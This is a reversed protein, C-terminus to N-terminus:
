RVLIDETLESANTSVLLLQVPSEAKGNLDFSISDQTAVLHVGEPLVFGSKELEPLVDLKRTSPVTYSLTQPQHDGRSIHLVVDTQYIMAAQRAAIVSSKVGAVADKMEAEAASLSWFTGAFVVIVILSSLGILIELATFGDSRAKQNVASGLARVGFNM